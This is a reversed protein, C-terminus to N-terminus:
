DCIGRLAQWQRDDLASRTQTQTESFRRAQAERAVTDPHTSLFVPLEIFRESQALRGFFDAMGKTNIAAQQLMDRAMADAAEEAGRSYSADLLAESLVVAATGGAFDGFVLSLLGASGAARLMARTPDRASVHAVEHALVAAVEDPSEAEEILGRLLVVQGGPAAFANVMKHNFVSITIPPEQPADLRDLMAALATVGEPNQCRLSATDGGAFLREMQEVVVRGMQAERNAPILAALTGALGPLVVFLMVGIAVLALAGRSVVRRMTGSAVDRRDLDPCAARIAAIAGADKLVLRSVQLPTGDTHQDSRLSLVLRGQRAGDSVARIDNLPWDLHQASGQKVMLRLIGAGRDLEFRAAQPAGTEGDYYRGDFAM